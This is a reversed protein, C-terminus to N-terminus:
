LTIKIYPWDNEDHPYTSRLGSMSEQSAVTSSFKIRWGYLKAGASIISKIHDTVDFKFWEMQAPMTSYRAFFPIVTPRNNYTITTESWSDKIMNCQVQKGEADWGSEGVYRLYLEAKVISLNRSIKDLGCDVYVWDEYDEDDSLHLTEEATPNNNPSWKEVWRNNNPHMYLFGPQCKERIFYDYGTLPDKEAAAAYAAKQAPTLFNWHLRWYGIQHRYLAQKGTAPRPGGPNKMVVQVGGRRVQFCSKDGWIKTGAAGRLEQLWHLKIKM